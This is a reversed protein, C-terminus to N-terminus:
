GHYTTHIIEAQVGMCYQEGIMSQMCEAAPVAASDTKKSTHPCKRLQFRKAIYYAGKLRDGLSMLESLICSTTVPFSPLSLHLSYLM